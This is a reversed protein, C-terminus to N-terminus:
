VKLVHFHFTTDALVGAQFTTVDFTNSLLPSALNVVHVTGSTGFATLTVVYGSANGINHTVTYLGTGPNTVTWGSVNIGSNISTGSVVGASAKVFGLVADDVYKKTAPNYNAAPTFVNTNDKRL